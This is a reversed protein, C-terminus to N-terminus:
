IDLVVVECPDLSIEVIGNEVSFTRGSIVDTVQSDKSNTPLQFSEQRSLNLNGAVFLTKHQGQRLYAVIAPNSTQFVALSSANPTTVLDAYRKRAASVQAIYNCIHHDTQWHYAYESFLPLKESPLHRVEESSFGLGTNIPYTECLEFGSHIFPVAPLFNYFAWVFRCYRQGAEVGASGVRAAVRPTNHSEGTAFSPIVVGNYALGSIYEMLKHPEHLQWMIGIVANYGEDRSAQSANFNEDWFAFDPNISRAKAILAQKLQSPLAHGMDIMVGDIGFTTQYYPIIGIISEWLPHNIFEPQALETSYMRITNYAIYNFHPHTYMKLYTVDGWPPQTDQPPWDAFAGPIKCVQKDATLGLYRGDHMEVSVPTQVFMSRYIDHPQPLNSFDGRNVQYQIITLEDQSFIPNGYRGEDSEGQPRNPIQEHIWYFWDPHEKVWDGDKASTRFVFEAVVRLGLHHCAEVFAKFEEESSLGLAPESLNEDIKYPNKIAYPSGLSGKNGDSGIATIPLLHVVTAGLRKIHPLLAISKLFTGTERFGGELLTHPELKGNADHDFATTTRVFLNYIVSDKTWDGGHTKVIATQPQSLIEEIVSVYYDFPNVEVYPTAAPQAANWLTPVVHKQSLPIKKKSLQSLVTKLPTM